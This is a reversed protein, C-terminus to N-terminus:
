RNSTLNANNSSPNNKIVQSARNLSMKGVRAKAGLMSIQLIKIALSM